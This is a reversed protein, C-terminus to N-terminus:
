ITIIYSLASEQPIFSVAGAMLLGIAPQVVLPWAPLWLDIINQLLAGWGSHTHDDVRLHVQTHEHIRHM